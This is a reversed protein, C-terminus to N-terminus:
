FVTAKLYSGSSLLPVIVSLRAFFTQIKREADEDQLSNLSLSLFLSLASMNKKEKEKKRKAKRM